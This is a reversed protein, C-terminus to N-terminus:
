NTNGTKKVRKSKRAGSEPEEPDFDPDVNIDSAAEATTESGFIYNFSDNMFENGFGDVYVEDDIYADASADWEEIANQGVGGAAIGDAVNENENEVAAAAINGNEVVVDAVNVNANESNENQNEDDEIENDLIPQEDEPGIAGFFQEQM